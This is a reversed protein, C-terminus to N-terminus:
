SSSLLGGLGGKSEVGQHISLTKGKEVGLSNAHADTRHSSSTRILRGYVKRIDLDLQREVNMLSRRDEPSYARKSAQMKQDFGQAVGMFFSNKARTGKLGHEARAAIWLSQLERDLFEAVYRALKVNTLTGTIELCCTKHGMSFVPRVIFHRLIEYIASMKADKRSRQLVRDVYLPPSASFDENQRLHDLNHRLLIENAKLTALEAEHPNGSQALQLLKKVKALVRESEFDGQREQNERQLDVTAAAVQADFGFQVCVSHFEPGHAAVPGHLLFTLYHAFEHRLIDKVVVDKALYILRRNLAIQMYSSNFHGLEPGGDFVVVNLPYFYGAFEFRRRRVTLGCSRVIDKLMSECKQIFALSTQDFILM